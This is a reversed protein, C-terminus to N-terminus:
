FFNPWERILYPRLNPWIWQDYVFFMAGFAVVIGVDRALPGGLSGTLPGAIPEGIMYPIGFRSLIAVTLGFTGANILTDM